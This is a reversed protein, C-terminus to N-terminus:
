VKYFCSFNFYFKLSPQVKKQDYTQIEERRRLVKQTESMLKPDLKDIWILM